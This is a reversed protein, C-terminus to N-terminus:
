GRLVADLRQRRQTAENFLEEPVLGIPWATRYAEPYIALEAVARNRYTAAMDLKDAAVAFCYALLKSSARDQYKALAITIRTSEDCNVQDAEMLCVQMAVLGSRYTSTLTVPLNQIYNLSRRVITPSAVDKHTHPLGANNCFTTHVYVAPDINYDVVNKAADQWSSQRNIGHRDRGGDLFAVIRKATTAGARLTMEHLFLSSIVHAATAYRDPM